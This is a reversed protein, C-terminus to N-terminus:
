SFVAVIKEKRDVILRDAYQEDEAEYESADTCAQAFCYNLLM